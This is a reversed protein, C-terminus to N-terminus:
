GSVEPAPAPVTVASPTCGARNYAWVVFASGDDAGAFGRELPGDPRLVFQELIPAGDSPLRVEAPTTVACAQEGSPLELGSIRQVVYGLVPDGRPDSPEWSVVAERTRPDISASVASGAPAGFPTVSLEAANWRAAEPFARNRASVAVAVPTGNVFAPDLFTQEFRDSAAPVITERGDTTVLYSDVATAGADTAPASWSLRFGGDLPEATLGVPEAPVIDSWLLGTATPESEGIANVAVVEITVAHEPGNGETPVTCSTSACEASAVLRGDGAAARLRFVRIPAFNDSGPMWSVTISRDGIEGLTVAGVPDPRDQVVIEIRGWVSRAEDGTADLLRYRVVAEGAAASDDAALALRGDSGFEATLGAPLDDGDLGRLEALRLPTDPFPNTAQADALVDVSASGGRPVVVRETVPVALPRTSGVIRVTIRGTSSGGSTDSAEVPVAIEAGSAATASVAISLRGGLVTATVDSSSPALADFHLSRREAAESGGVLLGLDLERSSGPELEITTGVLRPLQRGLPTVRIPLVITAIREASPPDNVDDTVDFSISAPGAYGDASRFRVADGDIYASSGDSHTALVTNPDAIRASRGEAAVLVDALPVVLATGSAVSLEAADDRPQPLSDRAGPVFVFAHAAVRPDDARAVSFPVIRARDAVDIRLVGRALVRVGSPDLPTIVVDAADGDALALGDLVRVDVSSRGVVESLGLTRDPVSPRAPPADEAVVVTLVASSRGGHADVIAYVFGYRGPEALPDISVIAGDTTASGRGDAAEVSEIVLGAGDPDLDNSLVGATIRGGPRVRAEDNVALPLRYAEAAPAIGIRVTGTARAGLADVVAYDFSDTGVADDAARYSLVAGDVAVVAGQEPSSYQGLLRVSDGDPDIAALPIPIRVTRGAVVRATVTQPVPAADTDPDVERVAITVEASAWQGDSGEVRYSATVTGPAAPALFRLRSVEAVLLGSGAPVGRVLEPDLMLAGGDGAVDNALVPIDVVAGVRVAASDAVAIPAPTAAPPDVDVVTIRGEATASGNTVTYRLVVPVPGIPRTVVIRVLADSIVQARVGEVTTEIGVVVLVGGAPDSDTALVDVDATAEGRIFATHPVTVPAGASAPAPATEIRVSGRISRKGDTVLYEVFRTGAVESRYRFSDGSPDRTIVADEQPSVEGLVPTSASGTVHDLPAVTVEQGVVTRVAFPEARLPIDERARIEVDLRGSGASHGDSVLLGVGTSPGGEGVSVTVSGDADFTVAAAGGGWVDALYVPDADPDMWDSLLDRRASSGAAIEMRTERVQVPAADEDPSRLEITAVATATGGRGDDITYRLEITGSADDPLTLKLQQGNAVVDVTGVPAPSHATIILADGNADSDNLLVPLLNARGPRAGLLDDGADPPQQAEEPEADAIGAADPSAAPATDDLMASWAAGGLATGGPTWVLGTDRDNLLVSSSDSRWRLRDHGAVGPLSSTRAQKGLCRQWLAGDDWAAYACGDVVIPRVASSVPEELRHASRPSGGNLPVELVGGAHEILVSDGTASPEQLAVPAAPALETSLDVRREPLTVSRSAADYVAWSGAVITISPLAEDDEGLVTTTPSPSSARADLTIVTGVEASYAAFRGDPALAVVSAAGLHLTPEADPTFAGITALPEIWISGSAPAHMVVVSGDSQVDSAGAPLEVATGLEARAPDLLSLESEARDVVLVRDGAQVLEVEGSRTPIATDLRDIATNVRGISQRSANTVWIGRDAPDVRAAPLGTSM